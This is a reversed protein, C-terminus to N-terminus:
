GKSVTESRTAQLFSLLWALLHVDVAVKGRVSRALSHKFSDMVHEVTGKIIHGLGVSCSGNGQMAAKAAEQHMMM